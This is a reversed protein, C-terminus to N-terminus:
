ADGRDFRYEVPTVLEFQDVGLWGSDHTHRWALGCGMEDLAYERSLLETVKGGMGAVKVIDGEKYENSCRGIKSWKVNEVAEEESIRVLGDSRFNDYDSEDLLEARINYRGNRDIDTIKVIDGNALDEYQSLEWDIVKAYDGVKLPNGEKVEEIPFKCGMEQLEDLTGEIVLGNELTIKM